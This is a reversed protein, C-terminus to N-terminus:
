RVRPRALRSTFREDVALDLMLSAGVAIWLFSLIWGLDLFGGSQYTGVLTQVTFVTDTYTLTAVGVVVCLWPLSGYGARRTFLLIGLALAPWLLLLDLAPYLFGLLDQLPSAATASTGRMIATVAPAGALIVIPASYSLPIWYEDRGVRLLALWVAAVLPVYELIFFVDPPGPYPIEPGVFMEYYAWVASGMMYLLAGMGLLGFVARRIDGRPYRLAVRMTIGGAYASLLVSPINNLAGAVEPDVVGAHLFTYTAAVGSAAALVVM